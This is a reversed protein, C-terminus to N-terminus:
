SEAFLAATRRLVELKRRLAGHYLDSLLDNGPEAQWAARAEAIAADLTVLDRRVLAEVPPALRQDSLLTSELEAAAQRWTDERSTVVSPVGPAPPGQLRRLLVASSWTAGIILLLGAALAAWRSWPAPRVRTLRRDVGTWLPRAPQVERPLAAVRPALFRAAAEDARCDACTALHAEVASRTASDLYGSVLEDLRDRTEDCNM